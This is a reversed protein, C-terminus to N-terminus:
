RVVAALVRMSRRPPPFPLHLAEFRGSLGLGEQKSVREDIAVKTGPAMQHCGAAIACRPGFCHTRRGLQAALIIVLLVSMVVSTWTLGFGLSENLYDSATEGVTTCLIKIIWFYVTVEPVKNLMTAAFTSNRTTM